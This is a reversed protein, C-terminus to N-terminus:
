LYKRSIKDCKERFHFHLSRSFEYLSVHCKGDYYKEAMMDYYRYRHLDKMDCIRSITWFVIVNREGRVVENVCHPTGTEYTIGYGPDLKVKIEESNLMLSLEGGDYTNPDNLFITTSFHGRDLDFHPRYYGGVKTKTIMPTSSERAYTFNLFNSNNDLANFIVDLKGECQLNKKLAYPNDKPPLHVSEIGDVWEHTNM